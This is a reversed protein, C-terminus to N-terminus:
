IRGVLMVMGTDEDVVPDSYYLKPPVEFLLEIAYRIAESVFGGFYADAYDRLKELLSDPLKVCVAKM